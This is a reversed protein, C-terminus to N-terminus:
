LSLGNTECPRPQVTSRVLENFRKARERELTHAVATLPHARKNERARSWEINQKQIQSLRRTLDLDDVAHMDWVASLAHTDRPDSNETPGAALLFFFSFLFFFFSFLLRRLRRCAGSAGLLFCRRLRLPDPLPGADPPRRMPLLQGYDLLMWTAAQPATTSRYGTRPFRAQRVGM